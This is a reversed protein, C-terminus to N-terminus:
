RPAGSEVSAADEHMQMLVLTGRTVIREGPALGDKPPTGAALIVSKAGEQIVRVKRQEFKMAGDKSPSEGANKKLVFVYDGGDSSVMALRPIVTRPKDTPAPIELYGSVMMEAKLKKEINPISTRVVLTKTEKDIESTISDITSKHIQGINACEVVWNQGLSVRSADSPYVYGYVWFHDLQAITLLVDNEDYLNGQVVDRAIVVGPSPARLTMKAKKTGDEKFVMAIEEDSLGFVMLKDKAIKSETGSKKEDNVNSLHDKESIANQKLLKTSRDLEAKDHEWQAMKTEYIGKAEALDASFLDVLPDGEKVTQGYKVYVKDILSRFKPRIKNLTNPDYDTKGNISLQLPETQPIADALELGLAKIEDATVEISGDFPKREIRANPIIEAAEGKGIGHLVKAWLELAHTRGKPTAAVAGGSVALILVFVPMKWTKLSM